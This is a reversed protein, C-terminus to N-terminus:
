ETMGEGKYKGQNSIQKEVEDVQKQLQKIRRAHLKKDSSESVEKRLQNLEAYLPAIHQKLWDITNM